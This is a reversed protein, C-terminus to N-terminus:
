QLSLSNVFGGHNLQWMLEKQWATGQILSGLGLNYKQLIYRDKIQLM